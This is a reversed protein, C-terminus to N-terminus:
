PSCPKVAFSHPSEGRKAIEFMTEYAAEIHKSFRVTDFLPAQARNLTLRHRFSQLLTKDQALRISLSEYDASTPTMLEPLGIARLLSAGVRGPFTAGKQTIVPVGAWLADAATTHANYPIGDLFLDALSLRALHSELPLFPAMVIRAGSVGQTEAEQRLNGSLHPDGELLWLVSGPVQKMIRMWSSFSAPTLKYGANFNCFIFSDPPLGCSARSPADKVVPRKSDNAQYSYPLYVVQETYFCREEAPIVVDDAIIYDMYPAGLTAPFGLYNVQVPAPRQAFV